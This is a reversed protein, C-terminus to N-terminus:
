GAALEALPDTHVPTWGLERQAKASTLQQDLAFADAIPGMQQRAQELSLSVTKGDLGAAHACAEAVEKATPNVGGVGLYVSGAPAPLAAAYLRALDDLHILAWHNTGDGLYPIAGTEKGPQVFFIDILRNDGGYLLGPRVIVPRGGDAARALVADEVPERWAVIAPPNWPAREDRVGDTDGYVWSGGTHVYTGGGVGDQMATAAALDEEGSTAQALHIVAEARAAAQGLVDLDTLGGRVATAGAAAVAAEARDSRALAEVTHGLRVLEGITARGIYGSGGTLFIKM